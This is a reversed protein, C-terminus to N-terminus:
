GYMQQFTQNIDNNNEELKKILQDEKIEKESVGFEKRFKIAAEVSMQRNGKYGKKMKPFYYASYIDKNIGFCKLVSSINYKVIEKSEETIKDQQFIKLVM